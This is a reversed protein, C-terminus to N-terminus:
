KKKNFLEHLESIKYTGCKKNWYRQEEPIVVYTRIIFFYIIFHITSAICLHM